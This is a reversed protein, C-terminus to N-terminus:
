AAQGVAALLQRGIHETYAPPVAQALGHLTMHGCGILEAQRQKSPTYGGKRVERAYTKDRSGGGYAGAIRYGRSKMYACGCWPVLLAINSEFLRHRKLVLLTGDDDVTIRGMNAGCYCVPNLLPAGPVNEIVYPLGSAVLRARTSGILDPHEVGHTHKTISYAQCPPSAHIADFGDFPFELADAQHFEFPYRPQKAIDVGVVEWGARAYGVAAGGECCFLDLLRPKM